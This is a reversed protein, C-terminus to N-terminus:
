ICFSCNYCLVFLTSLICHGSYLSIQKMFRHAVFESLGAKIRSSLTTPCYEFVLTMGDYTDTAPLTVDGFFKIINPHMLAQLKKLVTLERNLADRGHTDVFSKRIRKVAVQLRSPDDKDGISGKFVSSTKGSGLIPLPIFSLKSRTRITCSMQQVDGILWESELIEEWDARKDPDVVLMRDLTKKLKETVPWRCNTFDLLDTQFVAQFTRDEACIMKHEFTSLTLALGERGTIMDYLVVGASWVDFKHTHEDTEPAVYLRTGIGLTAAAMTREEKAIGFDIIKLVQEGESEKLLINDPKIDRHIVGRDRMYKM